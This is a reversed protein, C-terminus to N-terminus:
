KEQPSMVEQRQFTRNKELPIPELSKGYKNQHLLITNYRLVAENWHVSIDQKRRQGNVEIETYM